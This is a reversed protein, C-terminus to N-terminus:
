AHRIPEYRNLSRYGVFIMVVLILAMGTAVLPYGHATFDLTQGIGESEHVLDDYASIPSLWDTANAQDILVHFLTVAIIAAMGGLVASRLLCTCAVAIAFMTTHFPIMCAVYPWNMSFHTGWYESNWSVAITPVDLVGVVAVLGVAFKAAFLRGTSFPRTRWFEGLQRDIESSFLGAGVVASWLIGIFRMSSPLTEALGHQPNDFQAILLALLLGPLCMPVSQRLTMWIMAAGRTPLPIAWPWCFRPVRNRVDVFNRQVIWRRYFCVFLMALLSQFLLNILLPRSVSGAISLDSYNGHLNGNSYIQM